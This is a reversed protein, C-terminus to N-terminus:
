ICSSYIFTKKSRLVLLKFIFWTARFHQEMKLIDTSNLLYDSLDVKQGQPSLTEVQSGINVVQLDHRFSFRRSLKSILNFINEYM